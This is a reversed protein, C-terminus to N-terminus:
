ANKESALEPTNNHRSLHCLTVRRAGRRIAQVAFDACDDNSLHGQRGLIRRKLYEPYPGRLLSFLDHNSEIFLCEAGLLKDRVSEPIYGLDTAYGLRSSGAHFLFGVSDAADHPTSFTEVGIGGIEFAEGARFIKATNHLCPVDKEMSGATGMSLFVPAATRRCLIELGKIHDSHEHTIIVASLDAPTLDFQKLGETIRRCSVGADILLHTSGDSLIAANGTSGSAITCLFSM